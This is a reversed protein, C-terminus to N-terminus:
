TLLHFVVGRNKKNNCDHEGVDWRQVPVFLVKRSRVFVDGLTPDGFIGRERQDLVEGKVGERRASTVTDALIKGHHLHSQDQGREQGRVLHFIDGMLAIIVNLENGCSKRSLAIDDLHLPTQLCILFIDLREAHFLIWLPIVTLDELGWRSKPRVDALWFDALTWDMIWLM